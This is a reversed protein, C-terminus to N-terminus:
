LIVVKTKIVSSAKSNICLQLGICSCKHVGDNTTARFLKELAKKNKEWLLWTKVSSM